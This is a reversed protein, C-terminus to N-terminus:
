NAAVEAATPLRVLRIEGDVIRGAHTDEVDAILLEPSDPDAAILWEDVRLVPGHVESDNLGIDARPTMLAGPAERALRVYLAAAPAGHTQQIEEVAGEIKQMTHSLTEIANSVVRRVPMNYERSLEEAMEKVRPTVEVNLQVLPEDAM